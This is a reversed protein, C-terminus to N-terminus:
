SCQDSQVDKQVLPFPQKVDQINIKSSALGPLSMSLYQGDVTYCLRM